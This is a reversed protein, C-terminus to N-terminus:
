GNELVLLTTPLFVGSNRPYLIVDLRGYGM